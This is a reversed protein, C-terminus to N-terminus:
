RSIGQSRPRLYLGRKERGQLICEGRRSHFVLIFIDRHSLQPEAEEGGFSTKSSSMHPQLLPHGCQMTPTLRLTFTRVKEIRLLLPM